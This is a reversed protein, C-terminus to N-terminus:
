SEEGINHSTANQKEIQFQGGIHRCYPQYQGVSSTIDGAAARDIM